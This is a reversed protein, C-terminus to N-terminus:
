KELISKWKHKKMHKLMKNKNRILGPAKAEPMLYVIDPDPHYEPMRPFYEGELSYEPMNDLSFPCYAGGHKLIDNINKDPLVTIGNKLIIGCNGSDPKDFQKLLKRLTSDPLNFDAFCDEGSNEDTQAFLISTFILCPASFLIVRKM